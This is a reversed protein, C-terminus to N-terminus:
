CCGCARGRWAARSERAGLLAITLAAAPDAWWWGALANALLGALLAVALYACIMNQSSESIAAASSLRAGVDRKARALLPMGVVAIAGLAVGLWSSHPRQGSILDDLSAAVIYGALLAYSAAILQSARREQRASGTRSGSFLWLVVSGSLIEIASDAGFGVLAVSSAAIGAALAVSLEALHWANGTWALLRARRRLARLDPAHTATAREGAAMPLALPSTPSAGSM